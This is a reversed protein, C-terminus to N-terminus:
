RASYIWLQGCPQNQYLRVIQRRALELLAFFILILNIRQSVGKFLTQLTLEQHEELKALIYAIEEELSLGQQPLLQYPINKPAYTLAHQYARLLNYIGVGPLVVSSSKDENIIPPHQRTFLQKRKEALEYLEQSAKKFKQYELLQQVLLQRPDEEEEGDETTVPLLMRSKIYALTSTMVLYEGAIDLDLSRMMDLYHLYQETILAIPIDYIDIEHKKILHLLLDLPGEFTPLKVEYEEM